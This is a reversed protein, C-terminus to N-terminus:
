HGLGRLPPTSSSLSAFAVPLADATTEYGMACLEGRGIPRHHACAAQFVSTTTAENSISDPPDFFSYALSAWATASAGSSAAPGVGGAFPAEASFSRSATTTIHDTGPSPAEGGTGDGSRRSTLDGIGM